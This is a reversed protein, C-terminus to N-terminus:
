VAPHTVYIYVLSVPVQAMKVGAHPQIQPDEPKEMILIIMSWWTRTNGAHVVTQAFVFLRLFAARCAFITFANKKQTNM